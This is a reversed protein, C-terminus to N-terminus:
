IVVFALNRKDCSGMLLLFVNFILCNRSEMATQVFQPWQNQLMVCRMYNLLNKVFCVLFHTIKVICVWSPFLFTSKSKFHKFKWKFNMRFFSVIWETGSLRTLLDIFRDTFRLLGRWARYVKLHFWWPRVQNSKKLTSRTRWFLWTLWTFQFM